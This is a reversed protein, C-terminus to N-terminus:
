LLLTPTGKLLSQGLTQFTKSVMLCLDFNLRAAYIHGYSMSTDKKPAKSQPSFVVM